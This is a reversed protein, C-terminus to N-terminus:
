ATALETHHEKSTTPETSKEEKSFMSGVTEGIFGVVLMLVVIAFTGIILFMNGKKREKTKMHSRIVILRM